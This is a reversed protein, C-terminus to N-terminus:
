KGPAISLLFREVNEAADFEPLLHHAQYVFGIRERRLRTREGDPLRSAPQGDILVEGSSPTELLGAMHLLSSKGAGSPGVLAVLEGANLVFSIDSFVELKSTGQIYTRSVRELKLAAVAVRADNM